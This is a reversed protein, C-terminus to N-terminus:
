KWNKYNDSYEILSYMPMIMDADKANGIQTDNTKSRCNTFPACNKTIINKRKSANPIDAATNPVTISASLLIYADSYNCLIRRLM